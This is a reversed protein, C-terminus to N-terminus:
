GGECLGFKPPEVSGGGLGGWAIGRPNVHLVFLM